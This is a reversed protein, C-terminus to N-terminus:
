TFALTHAIWLGRTYKTTIENHLDVRCFRPVSITITRRCDLGGRGTPSAELMLLSRAAARQAAQSSGRSLKNTRGKM